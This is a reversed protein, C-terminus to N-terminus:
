KKGFDLSKAGEAPIKRKRFPFWILAGLVMFQISAPWELLTQIGPDWLAPSIHREVAPQLLLLSNLDIDAWWAGLPRLSFGADSQVSTWIDGGLFVLGIVFFFGGIYRM